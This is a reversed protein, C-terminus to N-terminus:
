LLLDVLYPQAATTASKAFCNSGVCSSGPEFGDAIKFSGLQYEFM